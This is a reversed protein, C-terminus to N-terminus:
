RVRVGNKLFPEAWGFPLGTDQRLIPETSYQTLYVRRERNTANAGSRHFTTGSFVAISGAPAVVPIGPDDGHYGILDNTGPESVHEVRRKTGARSYPLIYVTGNEENVDDLPCWCSVYHACEHEVYGSDQHWGFKMGKEACKIVWQDFFLFADDGVTARCIDAMLESFIFEQLRRGEKYRLHIFYRSNRHNLGLIDTGRRDMEANELDIFFQCESRLLELHEDCIARELIFYGEDRYQQRQEDTIHIRTLTSM